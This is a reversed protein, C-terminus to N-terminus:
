DERRWAGFTIRQEGYSGMTSHARRLRDAMYPDNVDADAMQNASLTLTAANQDCVYQSLTVPSTTAAPAIEAIM